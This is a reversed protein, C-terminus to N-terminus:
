EPMVLETGLSTRSDIYRTWSIDSLTQQHQQLAQLDPFREVGFFPWRENAWSASCMVVTQGGVAKLSEAVQKLIRQQEEEPLQYWPEIFRAQWLEYIPQSM